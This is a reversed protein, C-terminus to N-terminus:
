TKEKTEKTIKKIERDFDPNYKKDQTKRYAEYKNCAIAEIKEHSVKGANTLLQKESLVLFDDLKKVWDVMRM